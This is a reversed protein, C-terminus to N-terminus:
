TQGLHITSSEGHKHGVDPKVLGSWSHQGGHDEFCVRCAAVEQEEHDKFGWCRSELGGCTRGDGGWYEGLGDVIGAGVYALAGVYEGGLM